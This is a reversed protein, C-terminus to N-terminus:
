QLIIIYVYSGAQHTLMRAPSTPTPVSTSLSPWPFGTGTFSTLGTEDPTAVQLTLGDSDSSTRRRFTVSERM